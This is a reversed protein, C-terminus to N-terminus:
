CRFESEAQTTSASLRFPKLVFDSLNTSCLVVPAPLRTLSTGFWHGSSATLTFTSRSPRTLCRRRVSTASLYQSLLARAWYQKARRSDKGLSVAGACATTHVVVM